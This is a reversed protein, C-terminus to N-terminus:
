ISGEVNGPVWQAHGMGCILCPPVPLFLCQILVYYFQTPRHDQMMLRHWVIQCWTDSMAFGTTVDTTLIFITLYLMKWLGYSAM